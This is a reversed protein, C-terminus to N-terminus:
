DNYVVFSLGPSVWVLGKKAGVGAIGGTVEWDGSTLFQPESSDAPNFLAIHNFGEPTPVIDLYANTGVFSALASPVPHITQEQIKLLYMDHLTLHSVTACVHDIWGNDGQEGNKGLKRVVKGQERLQVAHHLEFHIVNGDDANRNVEKVILTTNGVWAVEQIISDNPDHREDWDLTFTNDAAPFGLSEHDALYSSLDFVHVSVLPNPYGPKPYKMVMDKTYPIVATSDDTPNYV